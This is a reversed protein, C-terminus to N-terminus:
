GMEVDGSGDRKAGGNPEYHEFILTGNMAPTGNTTQVAQGDGSVQVPIIRGGAMPHSADSRESIHQPMTQKGDLTTQRDQLARSPKTSRAKKEKYERYTTTRPIVDSLFELNDIRSVANALNRM